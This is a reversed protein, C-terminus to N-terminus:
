DLEEVELNEADGPVVPSKQGRPMWMGRRALEEREEEPLDELLFGVLSRSILDNKGDSDGSMKCQSLIHCNPVFTLAEALAYGNGDPNLQQTTVQVLCGAGPIEMAKTSKMWGEEQSAAKCILQFGDPNGFFEVDPVNKQVGNGTRNILTKM